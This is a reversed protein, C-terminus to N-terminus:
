KNNKTSKSIKKYINSKLNINKKNIENLYIYLNKYIINDDEIIYKIENILLLINYFYNIDIKKIEIPKYNKLQQFCMFSIKRYILNSSNNNKIDENYGDSDSFHFNNNYLCDFKPAFYKKCFKCKSRSERKAKSFEYEKRLDWINNFKKCIPCKQPINIMNIALLFYFEEKYNNKLLSDFIEIYNEKISLIDKNNIDKYNNLNNLLELSINNNIFSHNPIDKYFNLCKNYNNKFKNMFENIIIKSKNDSFSIYNKYDINQLIFNKYNINTKFLSEHFVDTFIDNQHYLIKEYQPSSICLTHYINNIFLKNINEGQYYKNLIKELNNYKNILEYSLQTKNNIYIIYNEIFNKFYNQSLIIQIFDKSLNNYNHNNKFKDYDFITNNIIYEEIKNNKFIELFFNFFISNIESNLELYDKFEKKKTQYLENKIIEMLNIPLNQNKSIYVNKEIIIYDDDIDIYIINYDNLNYKFINKLNNKWDPKYICIIANKKFNLLELYNINLNPIINYLFPFPYFLKKLIEIILNIKYINNHFFIITSNLYICVIILIIHEISLYEFLLNFDLENSFESNIFNYSEELCFNLQISNYKPLYIRNILINLINETKFFKGNNKISNNYIEELINHFNNPFFNSSYFCIYNPYYFIKNDNLVIQKYIRLFYLYIFENAKFSKFILYFFYNKQKNLYIKEEPLYLLFTNINLFDIHEKYYNKPYIHKIKRNYKINISNDDNLILNENNSNFIEIKIIFFYDILRKNYLIETMYNNFKKM